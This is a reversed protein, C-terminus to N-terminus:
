VIHVGIMFFIWPVHAPPEKGPLDLAGVLPWLLMLVVAPGAGRLEILSSANANARPAILVRHYHTLAPTLM